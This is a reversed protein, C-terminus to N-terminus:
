FSAAMAAQAALLRQWFYCDPSGPHEAASAAHKAALESYSAQVDAQMAAKEEAQLLPVHM